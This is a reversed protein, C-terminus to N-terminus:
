ECAGRAANVVDAVQGALQGAVEAYSGVGPIKEAIGSVATDTLSSVDFSALAATNGNAFSNLAAAAGGTIASETAFFATASGFSITVPTDVGFTVGEGAGSVAAALGTGLAFL